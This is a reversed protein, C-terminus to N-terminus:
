YGKIRTQNKKLHKSIKNIKLIGFNQNEELIKIKPFFDLILHLGITTNQFGEFFQYNEDFSL